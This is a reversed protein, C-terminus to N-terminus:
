SEFEGLVIMISGGVWVQAECNPTLVLIKQLSSERSTHITQYAYPELFRRTDTSAPYVNTYAGDKADNSLDLYM